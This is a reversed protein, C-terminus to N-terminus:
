QKQMLELLKQNAQFEMNSIAEDQKRSEYDYLQQRRRMDFEEEAVSLEQQKLHEQRKLASSLSEEIKKIQDLKALRTMEDIRIREQLM